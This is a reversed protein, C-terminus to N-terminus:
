IKKIAKRIHQYSEEIEDQFDQYTEKALVFKNKAGAWIKKIERSADNMGNRFGDKIEFKKLTFRLRLIEMKLKFKEFEHVADSLLNSNAFKEKLTYELDAMALIIKSKQKEFLDSTIARGAKLEKELDALKAKLEDTFESSTTTEMKQKLDALRSNFEKKIEEFKDTAEAKGLALQVALEDLEQQAQTLKNAITLLISKETTSTATEM